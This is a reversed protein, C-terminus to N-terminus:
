GGIRYLTMGGNKTVHIPTWTPPITPNQERWSSLASVCFRCPAHLTNVLLAYDGPLPEAGKATIIRPTFQWTKDGGLPGRQYVPLIRVTRADTWVSAGSAPEAALVTRVEGLAGAGNGVFLPSQSVDGQTGIGAGLVLLAGLGAAAFVGSPRPLRRAVTAIVGATALSMLPVFPLWYRMLDIRGAPRGPLFMGSIGVFLLYSALFSSAMLLLARHRSRWFFLGVLAVVGTALIWVRGPLMTEPNMLTRPIYTLYFMRPRGVFDGLVEIDSPITAQALDQRSFTHLKLLWDDHAVASILIDVAAWGVVPLAVAIMTRLVRGKVLLVIVVPFWIFLSTEKAEFSWGLLFGTALLLPLVGRRGTLMRGRASVALVLGLVVLAASFLDPYYSSLNIFVVWNSMLLGTATLGAVTGWWRAGLLYLSSALTGAALISWFYYTLQVDGFLFSLPVIPLVMGYRSYGLANWTDTPFDRGMRVYNWPDSTVIETRWLVAVAIVAAGIVAAMVADTRTWEHGALADHPPITAHARDAEDELRPSRTPARM